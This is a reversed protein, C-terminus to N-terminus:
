DKAHCKNCLVRQQAAFVSPARDYYAKQRETESRGQGQRTSAAPYISAGAADAVTMFENGYDFRLM